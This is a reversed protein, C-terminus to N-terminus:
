ITGTPTGSDNSAWLMGAVKKDSELIVQPNQVLFTQRTFSSQMPISDLLESVVFKLRVDEDGSSNIKPPVTCILSVPALELDELTLDTRLCDLPLALEM